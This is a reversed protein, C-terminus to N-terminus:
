IGKRRSISANWFQCEAIKTTVGAKEDTITYGNVLAPISEHIFDYYSRLQHDVLSYENFHLQLIDKALSM